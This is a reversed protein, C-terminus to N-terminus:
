SPDAHGNGGSLPRLTARPAAGDLDPRITAGKKQTAAETVPAATASQSADAHADRYNLQGQIRAGQECAFSQHFVDSEVVATSELRVLRAHIAGSTQGRIVVEQAHIEGSVVAGDEVIVSVCDVNGFVRGKILVNGETEIDGRMTLLEDIVSHSGPDVKTRTQSQASPARYSEAEPPAATQARTAAPAAAPSPRRIEIEGEEEHLPAPEPPSSPKKFM